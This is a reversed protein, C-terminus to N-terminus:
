KRKLGRLSFVALLAAGLTVVTSGGEPVRGGQQAQKLDGITMDDFGFGDAGSTNGFTIQSYSATTDIFGYFLLSADPASLSNNVLLNVPAGGGSPLLSLTINGGFDGIDTGFFGFASVPQSFLITFAGVGPDVNWLKTGSTPFRGAGGGIISGGGSLTATIAGTSGPFSLALPSTTGNAFSEFNETGVGTPLNSLFSNRATNSNGAPPVVGGPSLDEGFFVTLAASAQPVFAIMSVALAAGLIISKSKM